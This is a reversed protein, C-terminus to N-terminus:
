QKALQQIADVLKKCATEVQAQEFNTQLLNRAEELAANFVAVSEETYGATQITEANTVLNQLVTEDVPKAEIEETKETSVDKSVEKKENDSLKEKDEFPKFIIIGAIVIVLIVLVILVSVYKKKNPNRKGRYYKKVKNEKNKMKNM